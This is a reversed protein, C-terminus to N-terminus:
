NVSNPSKTQIRPIGGLTLLGKVRELWSIGPGLWWPYRAIWDPGPLNLADNTSQLATHEWQLRPPVETPPNKDNPGQDLRTDKQFDSTKLLSITWLKMQLGLFFLHLKLHASKIPQHQSFASLYWGVNVGFPPAYSSSRSQGRAAQTFSTRSPEIRLGDLTRFTITVSWEHHRHHIRPPPHANLFRQFRQLHVPHSGFYQPYQVLWISCHLLSQGPDTLVPVGLPLEILPSMCIQKKGETTKRIAPWARVHQPHQQFRIM